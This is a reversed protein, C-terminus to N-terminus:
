NDDIPKRIKQVGGCIACILWGISQLFIAGTGTLQHDCNCEKRHKLDDPKTAM